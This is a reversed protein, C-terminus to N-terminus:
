KNETSFINVRHWEIYEESPRYRTDILSTIISKGEFQAFFHDTNRDIIVNPNIIIELNSNLSWIGKDFTYHHTPCLSLGNTEHCEGGRAKWKIHAAEMPFPKHNHYIKLQCFSCRYDYAQMVKKPFNPDRKPRTVTITESDVILPPVADIGLLTLIEEEITEPFNDEIIEGILFQAMQPNQSLWQYTQDTFGAKLNQSNAQSASIDGSKNVIFGEKPSVQWHTHKKNDNQLRWLPYLCNADASIFHDIFDNLEDKDRNYEIWRHGKLLHNLAFIITLPKHPAFKNATKNKNLNEYWDIFSELM